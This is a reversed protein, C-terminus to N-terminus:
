YSSNLTATLINQTNVSAAARIGWHAAFDPVTEIGSFRSPDLKRHKGTKRDAVILHPHKYYDPLRPSEDLPSM